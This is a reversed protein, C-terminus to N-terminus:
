DKPRRYFHMFTVPKIGTAKLIGKRIKARVMDAILDEKYNYRAVLAPFDEKVDEKLETALKQFAAEELIDISSIQLNDIHWDEEVMLSIFVSCNYAIRRRNKVLQSSLATEQNRDVGLIDTAIEEIKEVHHNHYLMVDGNNSTEVQEIGCQLAFRKQERTFRHSGHVPLVIEPKLLNYMYKLEEKTAHGSTHVLADDSTIVEVGQGRLKEQMREIKDENGPIMKSSFIITDGATLKIDKHEGNAIITLASRYNAQSGTCIYLVKDSPIDRAEAIDLYKPLDQFYGNEKAIRMNQVLSRGVLVPTREAEYAALILSELRMLNSAFCTAILGQKFTPMMKILQQRVENETPLKEELLANTSDCVFMAVGEEAIKQLAAYDTQLFGIAGDDLRWDTAHVINGYPTRIALASTEPVSHVIPIFEVDFNELKVRRKETMSHLPVVEDLHEERLREKILGLTFNTAYVPCKLKPWIHAIAGFHDEHAHTIFLGEINEAYNELFSADAFALDMGPYDDNLFGYGADVVILKGKVAYVYMNIGIEDAGGMPIFYIGDREFNSM